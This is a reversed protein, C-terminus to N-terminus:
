PFISIPFSVILTRTISELLIAFPAPIFISDDIDDEDGYDWAFIGISLLPSITISEPCNL